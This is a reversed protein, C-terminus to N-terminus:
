AGAHEDGLSRSRGAAPLGRRVRVRFSPAHREAPGRGARTRSRTGTVTRKRGEAPRVARGPVARPAPGPAKAARRAAPRRRRTRRCPPAGSAPGGGGPGGPGGGSSYGGTASADDSPEASEASSPSAGAPESPAAVGESPVPLPAPDAPRDEQRVASAAGGDSPLRDMALGALGLAVLALVLGGVGLLVNRGRRRRARRDASRAAARGGRPGAPVAGRSAGARRSAGTRGEAHRALEVVQDAEHAPPEAGTGEPAAPSTPAPPVHPVADVAHHAAAGAAGGHVGAGGDTASEATPTGYPDHSHAATHLDPLGPAFRPRSDPAAGHPDAHPTHPLTDPAHHRLQEAPTGCGACALAGNLHRQCPHCYDM